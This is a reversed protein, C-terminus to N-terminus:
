LATGAGQVVQTDVAKGIDLLRGTGNNCPSLEWVQYSRIDAALLFCYNM